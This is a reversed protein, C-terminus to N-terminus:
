KSIKEHILELCVKEVQSSCDDLGYCDLEGGDQDVESVTANQILEELSDGATELHYSRWPGCDQYSIGLETDIGYMPIYSIWPKQGSFLAEIQCVKYFLHAIVKTKFYSRSKPYTYSKTSGFRTVKYKNRM